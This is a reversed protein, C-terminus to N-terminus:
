HASHAASLQEDICRLLKSIRVPKAMMVHGNRRTSGQEGTEENSILATLMIIPVKDLLPDARLHRTVDGGDSGPMVYDLVILDPRFERATTVARVSRNEIGVEFSGTAELNIKVAETLPQDDDILLIRKKIM